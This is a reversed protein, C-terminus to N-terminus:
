LGLACGATCPASLAAAASLIIGSVRVHEYASPLHQILRGQLFSAPSCFDAASSPEVRQVPFGGDCSSAAHLYPYFPWSIAGVSPLASM